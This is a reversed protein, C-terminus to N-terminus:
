RPLIRFISLSSGFAKNLMTYSNIGPLNAVFYDERDIIKLTLRFFHCGGKGGVLCVRVTKSYNLDQNANNIRYLTRKKHICHKRTLSEKLTSPFYDRLFSPLHLLGFSMIPDLISKTRYDHFSPVALWHNRTRKLFSDHSISWFYYRCHHTVKPHGPMENCRSFLKLNIRASSCNTM